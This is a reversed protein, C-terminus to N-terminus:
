EMNDRHWSAVDAIFQKFAATDNLDPFTGLLVQTAQKAGNGPKQLVLLSKQASKTAFFNEPLALLGQFYATKALWETLGKAEDTSFVSSPVYFLGLGGPALVNIAQELLLHHAYSHGEKAATAFAKAREDVPYYGVPLDSVAVDINNFQLPEIADQHFLEVDAKQLGASMSAVALQDEDNDVAYGHVAVNKAAHLQNMVAYLLNGTGAAIDAIKLEAPLKPMMTTVMFSVLSALADPTVQKNPEIQDAAITRVLVLQLAQRIEEASYEALNVQHLLDTLKATTNADPLGDEQTIENSAFDEGVEVLASIMSSKLNKQLLGTAQNLVDYLKEMHENAM